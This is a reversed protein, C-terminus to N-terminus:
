GPAGDMVREKRCPHSVVFGTQLYNAEMPACHFDLFFHSVVGRRGGATIDIM